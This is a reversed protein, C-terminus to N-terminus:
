GITKYFGGKYKEKKKKDKKPRDTRPQFVKMEKVREPYDVGIRCGAREQADKSM